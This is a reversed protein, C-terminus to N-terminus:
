QIKEIRFNDFAGDFAPAATADSNIVMLSLSGSGNGLLAALTSAPDGTGDLGNANTKFQNLPIVVTIWGNTTFATGLAKWPEYRALYTWTYDKVFYLSAGGWPKRLSMEFKLAYSSIPDSMHSSPVWTVGNTNMSRIGDYWAFDGGGIGSYAIRSYSGTNGPFLSPDNTVAYSGWSYNGDDFTTLMGTTYDNFRLISTGTGYTGVVQLPGGTSLGPPVTVTIKTIGSVTFNTVVINGPFIVKSIGYFADGFIYLTQGALAMENSVSTIVPVPPTITFKYTVSGGATIVTVTNLKGAPISDWAIVPVTIVLTSDSFLASNVAAPFGDFIIQQTTALNAGQIVVIQGPLAATLTSDNPKPSIARIQRISPMAAGNDKKCSVELLGAIVLLLLLGKKSFQFIISNM